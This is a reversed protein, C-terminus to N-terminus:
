QLTSYFINSNTKPPLTTFKVGYGLKKWKHHHYQPISSDYNPKGCSVQAWPIKMTPPYPRHCPQFRWLRQNVAPHKQQCPINLPLSLFLWLSPRIKTQQCQNPFRKTKREITEHIYVTYIYIYTYVNYIFIM